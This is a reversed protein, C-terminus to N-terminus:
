ELRLGHRDLIFGTPATLGLSLKPLSRGKETQIEYPWKAHWGSAHRFRRWPWWCEGILDAGADINPRDAEFALVRGYEARRREGLPETRIEHYPPQDAAQPTVLAPRFLNVHDHMLRAASWDGPM